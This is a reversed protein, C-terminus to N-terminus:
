VGGDAEMGVICGVAAERGSIKGEYGCPRIPGGV